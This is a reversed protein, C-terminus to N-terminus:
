LTRTGEWCHARRCHELIVGMAQSHTSRMDQAASCERHVLLPEFHDVDDFGTRVARSLLGASATCDCVTAGADTSLLEINRVCRPSFAYVPRLQIMARVVATQKFSFADGQVM